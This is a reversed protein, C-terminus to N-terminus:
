VPRDVGFNWLNPNFLCVPSRLALGKLTEVDETMTASMLFSQYVKPLFNGAFIARIDVDHGYSLILDAEDIILSDLNSLSLTKPRDSLSSPPSRILLRQRSCRSFRRRHVLSSTQDILSYFGVHGRPTLVVHGPTPVLTRVCRQLQATIGGAVNVLSVDSECYKVLGRLHVLVQEALERTPVVILARTSQRL